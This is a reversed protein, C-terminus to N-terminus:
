QISLWEFTNKMRRKKCKLKNKKENPKAEHKKEISDANSNVHVFLSIFFGERYIEELQLGKRHLLYNQKSNIQNAYFILIFNLSLNGSHFVQVLSSGSMNKELGNLLQISNCQYKAVIWQEFKENQNFSNYISYGSRKFKHNAIMVKERKQGYLVLKSSAAWCNDM